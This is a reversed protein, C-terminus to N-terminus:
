AQNGAHQGLVDIFKCITIQRKHHAPSPFCHDSPFGVIAEDLSNRMGEVRKIVSEEAAGARVSTM